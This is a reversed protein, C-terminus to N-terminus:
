RTGNPSYTGNSLKNRGSLETNLQIRFRTSPNLGNIVEITADTDIVNGEKGSTIILNSNEIYYSSETVKDPLQTSIDELNKTLQEKDIKLIPEINVNGFMTSLVYMNNQFINGQRGVNYASNIASKTDFTAGIQSLSITTEFDGHKVKIEEPLLNNLYNDLQYKADSMSMNSVDLGKIHVGSIINSNLTNYATFILFCIILISLVIIILLNKYKNKM